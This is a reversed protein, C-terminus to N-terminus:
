FYNKFKKNPFLKLSVPFNSPLRLFLVFFLGYVKQEHKVRNANERERKREILIYTNFMSINVYTNISLCM